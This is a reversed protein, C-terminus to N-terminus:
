FNSSTLACTGKKLVQYVPFESCCVHSHIFSNMKNKRRPFILCSRFCNISHSRPPECLALVFSFTLHHHSFCSPQPKWCCARSRAGPSSEIFFAFRCHSSLSQLSPEPLAPLLFPNASEWPRWIPREPELPIVWGQPVGRRRLCGQGVRERTETRTEGGVGDGGRAELLFRTFCPSSPRVEPATRPM